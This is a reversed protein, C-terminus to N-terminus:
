DDRITWIDALANADAQYSFAVQNDRPSFDPWLAQGGLRTLQREHSGDARMTWIQFTGTRNSCFAIRKGTADYAACADFGPHDTLRRLGTGDPRISHVDVNGAESIGFAIRGVAGPYTAQAPTPATLALLAALATVTFLRSLQM